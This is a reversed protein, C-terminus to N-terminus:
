GGVSTHLMRKVLLRTDKDISKYYSLKAIRVETKVTYRAIDHGTLAIIQISLKDSTVIKNISLAAKKSHMRGTNLMASYYM